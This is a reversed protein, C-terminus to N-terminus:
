KRWDTVPYLQRPALGPLLQRRESETQERKWEKKGKGRGEEWRHPKRERRPWPCRSTSTAAALGQASRSLPLPSAGILADLFTTQPKRFSIKPALAAQCPDLSATRLRKVPAWGTQCSWRRKKAPRGGIKGVWWGGDVGRLCCDEELSATGGDARGEQNQWM